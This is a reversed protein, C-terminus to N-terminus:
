GDDDCVTRDKMSLAFIKEFTELTPQPKNHILESKLTCLPNHLIRNILSKTIQEIMQREHPSMNKLERGHRELEETRLQEFQNRLTLILPKLDTVKRAKIFKNVEILIIEEAKSAEKQRERVNASIVERLDDIDYLYVNDLSNIKPDMDRPVAIDIIFLPRYRRVKMSKKLDEYKLIYDSASTSSLVIDVKQVYDKYASFPVAMGSFKDAVLRSNKETRSTIYIQGTSVQRKLHKLALESMKGTGIVLISSRSLDGFIKKALEIAVYSVSVAHRAIGTESRIMKAVRFATTLLHHLNSGTTQHNEALKLATKLQGLIQPEGVVMSDLSSAVRFIHHIAESNVHFYFTEALQPKGISRESQVFNTLTEKCVALNSTLGIFEVRNCTSLLILEDIVAIHHLKDLASSLERENFHIKERFEIPATKHNLGFVFFDVM